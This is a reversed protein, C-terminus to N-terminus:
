LLLQERRNARRVPQHIDSIFMPWRQLRHTVADCAGATVGFADRDDGDGLAEAAIRDVRARLLQGFDTLVVRLVNPWARPGPRSWRMEDAAESSCLARWAVTARAPLADGAPAPSRDRPPSRACANENLHFHAPVRSTAARGAIRRVEDLPERAAQLHPASSRPECRDELSARRAKGNEARQGVGRGRRANWPSSHRDRCRATAPPWITRDTLARKPARGRIRRSFSPEAGVKCSPAIVINRLGHGVEDSCRRRSSSVAFVIFLRFAGWAHGRTGGAPGSM